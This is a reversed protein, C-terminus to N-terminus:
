NCIIKFIIPLLYGSNKSLHPYISQRLSKLAKSIQNEVTKISIDLQNAIEQYSMEEFRSLMFVARCRAPLDDIAKDIIKQLEEKELNEIASVNKSELYSHNSHDETHIRQDRIYNLAKNRGARSLYAKLSTKINLSERKKWLEYFVDQSLDEVLTGDPIIRYVSQCIYKYYKRFILETAREDNVLLMQILDEDSHNKDIAM